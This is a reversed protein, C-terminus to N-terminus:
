CIVAVMTELLVVFFLAVKHPQDQDFSKCIQQQNLQAGNKAQV